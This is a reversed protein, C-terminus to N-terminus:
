INISDRINSAYRSKVINSPAEQYYIYPDGNGKHTTSLNLEINDRLSIEELLPVLFHNTLAKLLLVSM